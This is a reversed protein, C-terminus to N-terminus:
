ARATGGGMLQAVVIEAAELGARGQAEETSAGLHPLAIVNPLALLPHDAPAPETAFVDLCAGRLTGSTLAAYLANEDVTGGRAANVLVADPKMRALEAAGILNHTEPTLPVHLSVVDVEPLMAELTAKRAWALGPPAAPLLPDCWTVDMGFAHARVAVERGIRGFGILGLHRGALERGQYKSKEWKGRALDHAAPVVHREFALLLAFTLEAVSVANAAPTNSVFVGRAKAAAVDVNDLGTGARVVVRLDPAGALVDATVKTAGRVLIAQVGALAEILADGKLGTREVVEIGAARLRAVAAPDLADAVLAKLREGV